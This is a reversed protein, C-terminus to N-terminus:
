QRKSIEIKHQIKRHRLLFHCQILIQFGVNPFGSITYGLVLNINNLWITKLAHFLFHFSCPFVIFFM